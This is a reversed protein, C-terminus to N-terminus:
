GKLSEKEYGALDIDADACTLALISDIIMNSEKKEHHQTILPHDHNIKADLIANLKPDEKKPFVWDPYVSEIIEPEQSVIRRSQRKKRRQTNMESRNM